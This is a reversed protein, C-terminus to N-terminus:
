SLTLNFSQPHRSASPVLCSYFMQFQLFLIVTPFHFMLMFIPFSLVIFSSIFQTNLSMKPMLSNFHVLIPCNLDSDYQKSSLIHVVFFSIEYIPLIYCPYFKPLSWINNILSHVTGFHLTLWNRHYFKSSICVM